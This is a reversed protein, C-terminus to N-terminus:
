RVGGGTKRLVVLTQRLSHRAQPMGTHGWFLDAVVERSVPRGPRLALFAILARTKRPLGVVDREGMRLVFSGLVALSAPSSTSM